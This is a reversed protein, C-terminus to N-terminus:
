NELESARNYKIYKPHSEFIVVVFIYLKKATYKHTYIYIHSDFIANFITNFTINKCSYLM